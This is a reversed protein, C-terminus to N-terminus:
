VVSSSPSVDFNSTVTALPTTGLSQFYHERLIPMRVARVQDSISM